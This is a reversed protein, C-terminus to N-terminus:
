LPIANGTDHLQYPLTCIPSEVEYFVPDDHKMHRYSSILLFTQLVLPGLLLFLVLMVKQM